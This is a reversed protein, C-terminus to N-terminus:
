DSLTYTTYKRGDWYIAHSASESKVVEIADGILTVKRFQEYNSELVQGKPLLSWADFVRYDEGREILAVGAGITITRKDGFHFIVIGRQRTQRNTVWVAIDTKGDGNFDGALFFPNIGAYVDFRSYLKAEYAAQCVWTPLNLRPPPSKGQPWKYECWGKLQYAPLDQPHVSTWGILGAALVLSAGIRM